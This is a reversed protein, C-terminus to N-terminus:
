ADGVTGLWTLGTVVSGLEQDKAKLGGRIDLFKAQQGYKTVDLGLDVKLPEGRSAVKGAMQWDQRPKFICFFHAALYKTIESLLAADTTENYGTPICVNTVVLDATTVASNLADTEAVVSRVKVIKRVETASTRAM